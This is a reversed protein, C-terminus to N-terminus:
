GGRGLMVSVVLMAVVFLAIAVFRRDREKSWLWLLAVVRLAPTLALVLIGVAILGLGADEARAIEFLRVAPADHRGGALRVVVGAAMCVVAIALGGRLIAQVSAHLRDSLAEDGARM